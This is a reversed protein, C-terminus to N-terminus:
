QDERRDDHAARRAYDLVDRLADLYEPSATLITQGRRYTETIRARLDAPLRYWHTLCM